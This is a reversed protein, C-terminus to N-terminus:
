QKSVQFLAGGSWAMDKRICAYHVARDFAESFLYNALTTKLEVTERNDWLTTFINILIHKTDDEAHINSLHMRVLPLVYRYLDSSYRDFLTVLADKSGRTIHDLLLEDTCLALDEHPNM